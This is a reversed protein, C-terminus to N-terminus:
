GGTPGPRPHNRGGGVGDGDGQGQSQAPDKPASAPAAPGAPNSKGAVLVAAGAQSSAAGGAPASGASGQTAACSRADRILCSRATMPLPRSSNGGAFIGPPEGAIGGITIGIFPIVFGNTATAVLSLGILMGLALTTAAMRRGGAHAGGALQLLRYRAQEPRPNPGSWSETLSQLGDGLDIDQPHPTTM